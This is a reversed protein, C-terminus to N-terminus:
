GHTYNARWEEAMLRVQQCEEESSPIFKGELKLKWLLTFMTSITGEEQSPDRPGPDGWFHFTYHTKKAKLDDLKPLRITIAYQNWGHQKLSKSLEFNHTMQFMYYDKNQGKDAGPSTTGVVQMACRWLYDQWSEERFDAANIYKDTSEWGTPVANTMLDNIIESTAPSNPSIEM